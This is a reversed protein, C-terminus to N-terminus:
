STAPQPGSESQPADAKVTVTGPIVMVPCVMHAMVKQAISGFLFRSLGTRGHTTMMITDAKENGAVQNIMNAPDGTEVVIDVTYGQLVFREKIAKLYDVVRSLATEYDKESYQRATVITMPMDVLAYDYDSPVEIISVLIITGKPAVVRPIYNLAQEALPSGDLPIVVRKLM